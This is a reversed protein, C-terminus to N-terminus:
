NLAVSLGYKEFSRIISEKMGNWARGVWKTMLIRRHSASLKGEVYLELDKEQHGEFLGCVEDKFPKNVTVDVVQVCSTCGPPVNCLSTMKKTFLAKVFDTQQVQHVDVSM